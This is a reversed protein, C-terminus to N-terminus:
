RDISRAIEFASAVAAHRDMATGEQWATEFRRTSLTATASDRVLDRIGAYFPPAAIGIRERLTQSAALLRVADEPRATEDALWAVRDLCHSLCGQNGLTDFADVADAMLRAAEGYRRAMIAATGVTEFAHGLNNREGVARAIELMPESRDLLRQAEDAPMSGIPHGQAVMELGVEAFTVLGVGYQDNAAEMRQLAQAALRRAENFKMECVTNSLLHYLAWGERRPSGTQQALQRAEEFRRAAGALDGTNMSYEGAGLLLKIRARPSVRGREALLSDYWTGSEGFHSHIFWFFSLDAALLLANEPDGEAVCRELVARLNDHDAELAALAELQGPTSLLKSQRHAWQLFFARHCELVTATEGAQELRERAYALIAQLLGFRRDQGRPTVTVLSKDVLSELLDLAGAAAATGESSWMAQVAELTFGGRFVALRRLLAQEDPSLLDYSWDIAARLSHQRAVATRAGKSLLTLCDGLRDAIQLPSLVNLRAAALEIALPVGDLGRCIQACASGNEVTLAFGRDVLRGRDVFLEVAENDVLRQQGTDPLAMPPVTWVTEGPIGLTERSTALVSVTTTSRLLLEVCTAAGDIVQECNDLLVLTEWEQLRDVLTSAIPRNAQEQVGMAVAVQKAVQAPDAIRALDVFWVGDRYHDLVEAAVQLALRTKGVGGAGTLTVLRNGPVLATLERVEGERGIFRNLQQPLNNPVLDLTRLSPFERDLTKATVQFVHEPVDLDRLRHEGLDLLTVDGPLQDGVLRATVGSALVQGGHAAAMLRAARNVAPGFYDGSREEVEGTHLGMRVRVRVPGPWAEATLALQADLAARLADGARAFAAAFGDGGTAFVYGGHREITSRLIADHRALASRMAEPASEWLGTSGEIDTFLFTVTGSPAPATM